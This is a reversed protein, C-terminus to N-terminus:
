LNREKRINIVHDTEYILQDLLFDIGSPLDGPDFLSRMTQLEMFLKVANQTKKPMTVVPLAM